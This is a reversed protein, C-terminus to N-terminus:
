KGVVEAVDRRAREGYWLDDLTGVEDKSMANGRGKCFTAVSTRVGDNLRQDITKWAEM